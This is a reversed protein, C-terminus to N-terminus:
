IEDEIPAYLPSIGDGSACKEDEEFEWILWYDSMGSYFKWAIPDM